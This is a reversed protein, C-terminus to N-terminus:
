KRQRRRYENIIHQITELEQSTPQSQNLLQAVLEDASNEFARDLLDKVLGGLTKTRGVRAKYLFARGQPKRMLLGKETMVNLLSTVSKYARRRRKNLTEMMQRVTCPESEWLVQLVELEKPTPYPLKSKAM